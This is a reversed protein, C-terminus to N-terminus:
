WSGMTATVAGASDLRVYVYESGVPKGYRLPENVLQYGPPIIIHVVGSCSSADSGGFCVYLTRDTSPNIVSLHRYARNTDLGTSPLQFRVANSYTAATPGLQYGYPNGVGAYLPFRNADTPLPYTLQQAGAQGIITFSIILCIAILIEMLNDKIWKMPKM